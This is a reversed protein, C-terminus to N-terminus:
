DKYMARTHSFLSIRYIGGLAAHETRPVLGGLVISEALPVLGGLVTSEALPVLGGLVTSEALPVLGSLATSETHPVLGGLGVGPIPPSLARLGDTRLLYTGHDGVPNPSTLRVPNFNTLGSRDYEAAPELFRFLIIPSATSASKATSSHAISRPSSSLSCSSEHMSPGWKAM